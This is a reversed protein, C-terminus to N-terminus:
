KLTEAANYGAMRGSNFAFSLALGEFTPYSDGYMGGVDCGVAYLNQIPKFDPKLVQLLSNVRIGGIANEVLAAAKVAYFPGQSVGYKLYEANKFFM